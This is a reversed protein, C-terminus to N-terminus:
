GWKIKVFGTSTTETIQFDLYKLIKEFSYWDIDCLIKKRSSIEIQLGNNISLVKFKATLKGADALEDLYKVFERRFKKGATSSLWQINYALRDVKPHTNTAVLDLIRVSPEYGFHGSVVQLNEVDIQKLIKGLNEASRFLSRALIEVKKGGLSAKSIKNKQSLDLNELQTFKNFKELLANDTIHNCLADFLNEGSAVRFAAMSKGIIDPYSVISRINMENLVHRAVAYQYDRRRILDVYNVGIFEHVDPRARFFSEPSIVLSNYLQGAGKLRVM